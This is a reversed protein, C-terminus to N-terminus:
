LYVHLPPSYNPLVNMADLVSALFGAGSIRGLGGSMCTRESFERFSDRRGLPACILSPVPDGSHRGTNSDTSHDGTVGIVLEPDSLDVLPAIAADIRELLYRKGTPDHDHSCVDPGKIHLFVLDHERAASLAAQVKAYLDTNALSTFSTQVIPRYQFMRALGIVTREGAVVAAQLGLEGVITRNPKISGASRCIIGNAPPMGRVARERNIPHDALLDHARTTLENLIAASYVAAPDGPDQPLSELVGLEAFRTGPDTDTIKPSLSPGRLRLVARHQTAPQFRIQVQGRGLTVGDVASALEQTRERIRGARRDLIHLVSGRRELTAFNCRLLVDGPAAELGIGAAEVPGRALELASGPPLGLLIATGTHTGVPIGPSLPDVFGCMGEVTLHDFNPTTAAELPTLGALEPNPRDGLGDLIIVLGKRRTEM